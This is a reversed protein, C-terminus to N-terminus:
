FLVSHHFPVFHISLSIQFSSYGLVLQIFSFSCHYISYLLPLISCFTNFRVTFLMLFVIHWFFISLHIILLSFSIYRFLTILHVNLFRWLLLCIILFPLIFFYCLSVFIVCTLFYKKFFHIVNKLPWDTKIKEM